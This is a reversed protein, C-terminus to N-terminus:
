TCPATPATGCAAWAARWAADYRRLVTGVAALVSPGEGGGDGGGLPADGIPVRVVRRTSSRRKGKETLRMWLMGDGFGVDAARLSAITDGRGGFTAAAATAAHERLVAASAAAPAELIVREVATAPAASRTDKTGLASQKHALGDRVRRLVYDDAIEGCPPELGADRHANAIATFLPQMSGAALTGGDALHGAYAWVTAKAAPLASLGGEAACYEVFREWHDAEARRTAPARALAALRAATAAGAVPPLEALMRRSLLTDPLEDPLALTYRREASM